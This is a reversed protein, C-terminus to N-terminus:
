GIFGIYSRLDGSYLSLKLSEMEREENSMDLLSKHWNELYRLHLDSYSLNYKTLYLYSINLCFFLDNVRLIKKFYPYVSVNRLLNEFDKSFRSKLFLSPSIKENLFFNLISEYDIDSQNTFFSELKKLCLNEDFLDSNNNSKKLALNHLFPLFSFDNKELWNLDRFLHNLLLKLDEERISLVSSVEAFSLGLSFELYIKRRLELVSSDFGIKKIRKYSLYNLVVNCFDILDLKTNVNYLYLPTYNDLTDLSLDKDTLSICDDLNIIKGFILCGLLSENYELNLFANRNDTRCTSGFDLDDIVKLLSQKGDGRIHYKSPLESVDSYKLVSSIFKKFNFYTLNNADSFSINNEVLWFSYIRLVRVLDVAPVTPKDIYSPILGRDLELVLNTITFTNKYVSNLVDAFNRMKEM